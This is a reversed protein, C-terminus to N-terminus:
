VTFSPINEFEGPYKLSVIFSSSYTPMVGVM